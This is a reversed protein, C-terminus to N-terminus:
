MLLEIFEYVIKQERESNFSADPTSTSCTTPLTPFTSEFYISEVTENIIVEDKYLFIVTDGSQLSNSLASFIIEFTERTRIEDILFVVLAPESNIVNPTVIVPIAGKDCTPTPTPTLTQPSAIVQFVKLILPIVYIYFSITVVGLIIVFGLTRLKKLM